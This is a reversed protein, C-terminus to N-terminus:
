IEMYFFAVVFIFFIGLLSNNVGVSSEGSTSDGLGDAANYHRMVNRMSDRRKKMAVVNKVTAGLTPLPADGDVKWAGEVSPPCVPTPKQPNYDSQKVEKPTVTKWINQLTAFEPEMPIPPGGYVTDKYDVVGYDNGENVWEYIIAGSWTGSM